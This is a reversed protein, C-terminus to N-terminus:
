SREDEQLKRLCSILIRANAGTGAGLANRERTERRIDAPSKGAAAAFSALRKEFVSGAIEMARRQEAPLSAPDDFRRVVDDYAAKCTLAQDYPSGEEDLESGNGLSLLSAIRKDEAGYTRAASEEFAADGKAEPPASCGALLIATALAACRWTLPDTWRTM